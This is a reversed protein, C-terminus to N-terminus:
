ELKINGKKVVDMWTRMEQAIFAGFRASGQYDPEVGRTEFANKVEDLALVTEIAKDLRAVIPSPTGAPALFGWWVIADYGPVGAESLTPVDPLLDIRRASTTGLARLKGSAVHPRVTPLSVITGHSHGGLLDIVQQNGGKYHVPVIDVGAMNRFLELFMHSTTGAGATGFFVKGPNQKAYAIFEKLSGSAVSPTVVLVFSGKGVRAIPVFSKIPDYSLKQLAPQITLSAPVFLLTYGDPAAKSVLTTGIVGGAGARNDVIVQSGLLDSLRAAMLRGIVDNAGGAGSPVIVRIPRDPYSDAALASTFFGAAISLSLLKSLIGRLLMSRM